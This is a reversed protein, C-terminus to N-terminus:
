VGVDPIQERIGKPPPSFKVPKIKRADCNARAEGPIAKSRSSRTEEWARQRSTQRRDVPARTIGDRDEQNPRESRNSAEAGDHRVAEVRV